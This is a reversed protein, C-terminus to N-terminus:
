GEPLQLVPMSSQNGQSTKPNLFRGALRELLGSVIEGPITIGAIKFGRSKGGPSNGVQLEKMVAAVFPKVLAEAQEPHENLNQLFGAVYSNILDFFAVKLRSIALNRVGVGLAFGLSGLTLGFLADVLITDLLSM